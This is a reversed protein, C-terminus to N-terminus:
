HLDEPLLRLRNKLVLIQNALSAKEMLMQFRRVHDLAFSQTSRSAFLILEVRQNFVLPLLFLASGPEEGFQELIAFNEPNPPITGLHYQQNNYISHIINPSAIPVMLKKTQGVYERSGESSVVEFSGARLVLVSRHKFYARGFRLILEIIQSNTEAAQLESVVHLMPMPRDPFADPVGIPMGDGSSTELGNGNPRASSEDHVAVMMNSIDRVVQGRAERDTELRIYRRPRPVEYYRELCRVITVEPAVFARIRLGTKFSVEDIARLNTPDILALDLRRNEKKFPVVKHREAMERPISELVYAPIDDLERSDVAPINCQQSLFSTLFEETVFGHEVLNTGLKGGYILQAKLAEELQQRTLIGAKLLMEGIRLKKSM